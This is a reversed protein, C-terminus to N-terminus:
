AGGNASGLCRLSVRNGARLLGAFALAPVMAAAACAGSMALIRRRNM